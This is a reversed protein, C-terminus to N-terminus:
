FNCRTESAQNDTRRTSFFDILLKGGIMGNSADTGKDFLERELRQELTILMGFTWGVIGFCQEFDHEVFLLVAMEGGGRPIAVGFLRQRDQPNEASQFGTSAGQILELPTEIGDDILEVGFLEFVM